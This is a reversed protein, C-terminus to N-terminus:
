ESMCIQSISKEYFKMKENLTCIQGTIATAVRFKEQSDRLAQPVLVGFWRLPDPTDDTEEDSLGLDSIGTEVPTESSESSSNKRRRIGGSTDPKKSDSTPKVNSVDFVTNEDDDQKLYTMTTAKMDSSYHLRSVREVGMIYRAKSMLFFGDSISKQLLQKKEHIEQVTRLYSLYVDALRPRETVEM